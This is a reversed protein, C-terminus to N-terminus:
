RKKMSSSRRLPNNYSSYTLMTHRERRDKNRSYSPCSFFLSLFLYISSSYTTTTSCYLLLRVLWTYRVTHSAKLLTFVHCTCLPFHFSFFCYRSQIGELRWWWPRKYVTTSITTRRRRRELELFFMNRKNGKEMKNARTSYTSGSWLRSNPSIPLFFSVFPEHSALYRVTEFTNHKHM